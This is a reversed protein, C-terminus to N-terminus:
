QVAGDRSEAREGMELVDGVGVGRRGAEGARLELTSRARRCSRSRWPRVEPRVGVVVGNRDLFVVDIAFRMFFTQVSPAPRLLMGEDSGLEVESRIGRITRTIPAVTIATLVALGAPRSLVLVPRPVSGAAFSPLPADDLSTLEFTCIDDAEVAKRAVRVRLMSPANM